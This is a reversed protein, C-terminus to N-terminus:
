GIVERFVRLFNEGLISKIDEPSYGRASLGKTINPFDRWDKYGEVEVIEKRFHGTRWGVRSISCCRIEEDRIAKTFRHLELPYYHGYDTGIGVKDTGLIGVAHDVHDLFDELSPSKKTSIFDPVLLIGMYGGNKRLAQLAADTKGRDHDCIARCFTHTLAVPTESAQIGEITTQPGCHSLDVLIGLENMRKIAEIGFESLGEDHRETCGSGLLNRLNYTVQMIRVGFNYLHELRSFNVDLWNMNQVGLIVGYKSNAKADLMHRSKTVKILKESRDFRLTWRSLDEIVEQYAETETVGEPVGVTTHIVNVGSAVWWDWFGTGHQVWQVDSLMKIQEITDTSLEGQAIVGDLLAKTEGPLTRTSNTFLTDIVLAEKHLCEGIREMDEELQQTM